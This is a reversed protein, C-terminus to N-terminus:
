ESQRRPGADYPQYTNDEPRYSRYREFCSQMHEWDLDAKPREDANAAAVLGSSSAATASLEPSESHPSVCKRRVGSYANYSDDRPDYSRYQQSCWEVHAPNMASGPDTPIAAITTSDIPESVGSPQSQDAPPAQRVEESQQPVPRAPLRQLNQAAKDVKVPKSTWLAGTNMDLPHTPTPKANVFYIATLAGGAFIALTLCFGSLIAAFIKM